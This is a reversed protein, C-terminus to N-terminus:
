LRNQPASRHLLLVSFTNAAMQRQQRRGEEEEEEQFRLSLFHLSFLRFFLTQSVSQSATVTLPHVIAMRRKYALLFCWLPRRRRVKEGRM